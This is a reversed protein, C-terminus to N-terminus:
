RYIIMLYLLFFHSARKRASEMTDKFNYLSLILFFVYHYIGTMFSSKTRNSIRSAATWSSIIVIAAHNCLLVITKDNKELKHFTQRFYYKFPSALCVDFMQLNHSTNAETAEEHVIIKSNLITELM